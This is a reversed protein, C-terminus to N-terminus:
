KKDILCALVWQPQVIPLSLQVAKQYESSPSFAIGFNANVELRSFGLYTRTTTRPRVLARAFSIRLTSRLARPGSQM